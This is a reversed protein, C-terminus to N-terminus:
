AVKYEHDVRHCFNQYSMGHYSVIVLGFCHQDVKGFFELKTICSAGLKPWFYVVKQRTIQEKLIEKLHQLMSYYM